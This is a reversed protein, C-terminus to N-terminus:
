PCAQVEAGDIFRVAGDSRPLRAVDVPQSLATTVGCGSGPAMIRIWVTLGETTTAASDVLITYGGTPREGLAVIVLMERAFDVTPLEPTPSHGRWIAAWAEAWTVQDRVVLRQPEILGSYYTFSRPGSSLRLVPVATNSPDLATTRECGLGVLLLAFVPVSVRSLM